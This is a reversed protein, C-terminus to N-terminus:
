RKYSSLWQAMAPQGIVKAVEVPTLGCALPAEHDRREAKLAAEAASRDGSGIAEVLGIAHRSPSPAHLTGSPMWWTQGGEGLRTFGARDYVPEGMSTANLLVQRCGLDRACRCAAVTLATGIGQRRAAPVVEMGYLGGVPEGEDDTAHLMVIGVGTGDVFAAFCRLAPTSAGGSPPQYPLGELDRDTDRDIECVVLGAPRPLDEILQAPELAMWNPRWGWHFGRALLRAGLQPASAEDMTWWGVQGVTPHERAFAVVEDAFTSAEASPVDPFGVLVEAGPQYTVVGGYRSDVSGGALMAQTAFMSQHNSAGALLLRHRTPDSGSRMSTRVSM